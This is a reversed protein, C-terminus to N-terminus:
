RDARAYGRAVLRGGRVVAPRKSLAREPDGEVRFMAASDPDYTVLELGFAEALREPVTEALALAYAANGAGAAEGLDQLAEALADPVPEGAPARRGATLAEAESAAFGLLRDAQALQDEVARRRGDVLALLPPPARGTALAAPLRGLAGLGAVVLGLGAVVAGALAQGLLALIVVVLLLLALAGFAPSPAAGRPAPAAPAPKGIGAETLDVLRLGLAHPFPAHDGREWERRAAALARRLSDPDDGDLAARFATTLGTM